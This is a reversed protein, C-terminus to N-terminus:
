NGWTGNFLGDYWIGGNFKGGDFIGNTWIGSNWTSKTFKSVVRLGTNINSVNIVGFLSLNYDIILETQGSGYFM